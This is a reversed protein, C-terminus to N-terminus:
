ASLFAAVREARRQRAIESLLHDHGLIPLAADAAGVDDDLGRTEVLRRREQLGLPDLLAGEDHGVTRHARDLEREGVDHVLEDDVIPALALTPHEPGQAGMDLRPLEGLRRQMALEALDDAALLRTARAVILRDEEPM